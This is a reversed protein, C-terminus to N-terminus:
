LNGKESCACGTCIISIRTVNAGTNIEMRPTSRGITNIRFILFSSITHFQNSELWIHNSILFNKKKKGFYSVILIISTIDDLSRTMHNKGDWLCNMVSVIPLHKHSQIGLRCFFLFFCQNVKECKLFYFM